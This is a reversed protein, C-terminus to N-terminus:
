TVERSARQEVVPSRRYMVHTDVDAHSFGLGAYLATAPANDSEVYLHVEDVGREALHHLGALTLLRGLGQGQGEPAVGLVYVEGATASHVKTWHFGLMRGDVDTAILLDAPDFWPEAMRADLDAGDMGGQEPHAAFAAANARLLADRDTPRYGRVVVGSPAVLDGLPRSMPRRLVWLDRVRAFDHTRALAAAAPHNGHSWATGTRPRGALARGLLRRGLGLSRADPHVVLSLDDDIVLAFGDPLVIAAVLDARHRLARWTGEDLPAAGDVARAAASIASVIQFADTDM